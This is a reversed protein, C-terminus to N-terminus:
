SLKLYLERAARRPDEAALIARCVAIRRIGVATVEAINSQGINGIAFYPISIKGRLEAALQLGIAPYGPKTLTAYIPGIGLYDAGQAQAMLAQELNHCSVGIVKDPGLIKRAQKLDFDHQGLHVGDALAAVAVNVYDNIIFLTQSLDIQKALKLAFNLVQAESSSKDRLQILDIKAASVLSSIKKFTFNRFKPRDLILYLQSKKLLEKRSKM